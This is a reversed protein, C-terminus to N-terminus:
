KTQIKNLFNRKLWNAAEIGVNEIIQSENFKYEEFTKQEIQQMERPTVIRM